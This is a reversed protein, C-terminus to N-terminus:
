ATELRKLNKVVCCAIRSLLAGHAEAVAEHWKKVNVCSTGIEMIKLPSAAVEALLQQDNMALLREACAYFQEPKVEGPFQPGTILDAIRFGDFTKSALASFEPELNEQKNTARRM